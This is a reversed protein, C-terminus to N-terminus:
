EVLLYTYEPHKEFWGVAYPCQAKIQKDEEKALAVVKEVLLNGIGQGRLSPDVFTRDICLVSETLAPFTIEALLTGTDDQAYIRNQERKLEM